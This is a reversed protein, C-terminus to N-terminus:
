PPGGAECNPHVSRLDLISDEMVLLDLGSRRACELADTPTCVIPEGAVNFSTNLLVPCGTLKEFETLLRHFVPNADSAVTQVRASWDIHTCAPIQSRPVRVREFVDDPEDSVQLRREDALEYTFLMYPSPRDMEFWESAREELVAPAFPRFSERGKVRLNLDLQIDGSRPDALISRHGLARPGFEMRGQFWGVVAGSALAEAVEACLRATDSLRRHPVHTDDLWTSIEDGTFSPGLFAGNMSDAGPESSPSRRPAGVVQHWYWLAAGIASGADGAAPQIWVEDFPGERELRGNAVCNLAVGGALCLRDQGSLRRAHDAMRLVSCEVLDQVSRALDVDRRTLSDGPRRPPGDFLSALQTARGPDGAWWDVMAGDVAISGDDAVLAIEGLQAAYRPEGYPALGMLKYEGDNPAFGCWVTALSYLLGLSHPFRQEQLLDLRNGCGSAVTTTAWEGVGDITLVAASEFPSPYFAAAAHSVHHESFYVQPARLAGLRRFVREVRYSVMLNRGLFTPMERVFTPLAAAGRQQRAALLRALLNLPKEYLVVADIEDPEVGGIALCSAIAQEPFSCDHKIRSFREEENAAVIEGDVVLAAASDHYDCSIGLIRM